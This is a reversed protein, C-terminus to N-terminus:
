GHQEIEVGKSDVLQTYLEEWVLYLPFYHQPVWQPSLCLFLMDINDLELKDPLWFHSIDNIRLDKIDYDCNSNRNHYWTYKDILGKKIGFRAWNGCDLKEYFKNYGLDHHHDVNIVEYSEKDSLHKLILSHDAIFFIEKSKLTKFLKIVLSTLNNYIQLDAPVYQLYPIDNILRDVNTPGVLHNYIEVSPAMITDFDITLIRKM